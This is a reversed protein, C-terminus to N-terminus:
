AKKFADYVIHEDIVTMVVHPQDFERESMKTIDKKLVTFDALYGKEIFGKPQIFNLANSSTTYCQIAEYPTLAEELHYPQHDEHSRRFIADKIGLLPNPVEVPADSSGSIILGEKRYTKWPFILEPKQSFHHWAKPLDSSLFQPQIDIAMSLKKLKDLTQISAWPAHIIRDKTGEKPPHALLLDCVEDLGRDGIVHIAVTLGHERVKKLCTIFADKGMVVEGHTSTGQYPHFMLATKSSMTGDYFMKIAGLELYPTQIGWAKHSQIFDDLTLHHILLHTRFPKKSLVKEFVNVTDHFGNFYYLDDSHGGTVGFQYLSDLAHNLMDELVENRHKPLRSMLQSAEEEKLIGTPHSLGMHLLAQSNLTLGHYDSHRLFVLQQPFFVDLDHATLGQDRYGEAFILGRDHYTLLHAVIDDHHNLGDLSIQTLHQGYGLMHLHADVFGPYVHYGQLDIIQDCILGDVDDDIAVIKGNNTALKSYITKEDKMSHFHGNIWAIM